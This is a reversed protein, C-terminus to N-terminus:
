GGGFYRIVQAGDYGKTSYRKRLLEIVEKPVDGGRQVLYSVLPMPPKGNHLDISQSWLDGIISKERAYIHDQKASFRGELGAGSLRASAADAGGNQVEKLWLKDFNNQDITRQSQVLIQSMLNAQGERSNMATPVSALIAKFEQFAKSGQASQGQLALQTSIKDIEEKKALSQPDTPISSDPIGFGRMTSQVWQMLPYQIAAAFPGAKTSEVLAKAMARRSQMSSRAEDAAEEHAAFPSNAPDRRLNIPGAELIEAAKNQAEAVLDDSLQSYVPANSVPAAAVPAANSAPPAAAEPSAPAPSFQDAKQVTGMPSNVPQEASVGSGTAPMSPALKFKKGARVDKFYQQASIVSIQNKDDYVRVGLLRGQPDSIMASTPIDALGSQTQVNTLQTEAQTQALQAQRQKTPLYAQAGAGVGTALATGLSRTPATGMAAIGTLLPIINEATGYKEFGAKLKDKVSPKEAASVLTPPALGSASPAAAQMPPAAAAQVPPALGGAPAASEAPLRMKLASLQDDTLVDLGPKAPAPASPRPKQASPALPNKAFPNKPAAVSSQSAPPVVRFQADTPAAGATSRVGVNASPNLNESTNMPNYIPLQVGGSKSMVNGVGNWLAAPIDYAVAPASQTVFHKLAQGAAKGIPPLVENAAGLGQRYAGHVANVANGYPSESLDRWQRKMWSDDEDGVAGTPDADAHHERGALGGSAYGVQGGNYFHGRDAAEKTAKDYDVTKYGGALGVASPHKQEVDQAILGIQFKNKPNGKYRYKYIPQGDFTKGVLEIDKKLRKDSSFSAAVKAIDVLESLGSKPPTPLEPADLKKTNDSPIPVDLSAKKTLDEDASALGGSAYHEISGGYAKPANKKAAEDILDQEDVVKEKRDFLNKAKNIAWQGSKSEAVDKFGKATEAFDKAHEVPSKYEPLAAPTMMEPTANTQAPVISTGGYPAGGPAAGYLGGHGPAYMASQAQILEAMDAGTLGPAVPTSGSPMGGYAYGEDFHSADVHGGMSEPVLGGAYFHGRDAAANTAKDYDVTKYGGALGVASPHKHEVDQAILGIQTKDKPDGKYRYKYITQNDFTKGVPEIDQKLREDSFFGGPALGYTSSGSLAGTGQAIAAQQSLQQYPLSQAQLFQNYLAQNQAQQTQQQLTGAGIQAQAGQLAANQAGLGLNALANSTNAGQGYVQQGIAAQQQSATMGQGFQQQGLAAQQAATNAGQAYQQQGLSQQAQGAALGQGFQQQGLAAMNQGTTNAQGFQQQGLAAQQQAAGMGQGYLQQGMAAQQAATNAGQAYQQQGLAAQNQATTSGQNFQQQGIAALNQGTTTAQGFQQQGLAAQQQAASLNQGFQQQGLAAQQAATNAGQAYQQQGLAAQAQGGALGQGFQQQGLAAFNQGAGAQQGYVQQGLAAQQQAASMGQGFQQQGLAGIQQSGAMLAARNAQGAGLNMGQQQQATQLATNYGQNLLNSYISANALQQQQNLNAAAIGARDGGFAGSRVANGLQGAMAQQNGQNLLQAQSGVVNQLYPSMYQNISNTDLPSANVAQTAAGALGVAAQNLPNAAAQAGYINQGAAQNYGQSQNLSQNYLNAAALGGAQGASAANGYAQAAQDQLGAASQGAGQLSGAAQRAFDSGIAQGSAINQASQQNLPQASQMASGYMGTAQNNYGQANAYAQQYGQAAQNQLPQASQGAGQLTNYANQTMSGGVNQANTINQSAQNQLPQAAGQAGAYQAGATNNYGQANGYASGYAQAAQGQLGAAAQGAGQLSQSSQNAYANGVNQAGYINGTAARNYGQAANQAQTLQGTAAGYYPQAQNAAANVGAIGQQQQANVPAVFEGTYNQYPRNTVEDARQNVANYRALVEPPITVTSSSQSSKGGM